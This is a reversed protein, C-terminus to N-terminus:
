VSPKRGSSFAYCFDVFNSFTCDDLLPLGQSAIYEQLIHYATVMEESFYDQWVEPDDEYFDYEPEEDLEDLHYSSLEKEKAIDKNQKM